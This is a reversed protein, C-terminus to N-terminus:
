CDTTFLIEPLDRPQASTPAAAIPAAAQPAPNAETMARMQEARQLLHTARERAHVGARTNRAILAQEPTM